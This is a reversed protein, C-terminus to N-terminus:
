QQDQNVSAIKPISKSKPDSAEDTGENSRDSPFLFSFRALDVVQRKLVDMLEQPFNFDADLDIKELPDVTMYIGMEVEKVPVKEIGLLYLINGSRYWYPNKPSPKTNESRYLWDIKDPSTRTIRRKMFPEECEDDEAYYAMYEVGDDKDYDFIFGPLEVYKRGKIINKSTSTPKIVPVNAFTTLFAGSDRKIIHQSLLKNATIIVWYAAQPRGVEKDDFTQKITVLVEDVVIKLKDAM